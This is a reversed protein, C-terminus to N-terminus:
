KVRERTKPTMTEHNLVRVQHANFVIFSDHAEPVFKKFEADSLSDLKDLVGHEQLRDIVETTLGEYRNLYVIGDFGASKASRIKKDWGGGLDKCRRPKEISLQAEYITRSSGSTRMTAQAYSGFHLGGDTTQAPDLTTIQATTAHYLTLLEGDDNRVRSREGWHSLTQGTEPGLKRAFIDFCGSVRDSNLIQFKYQTTRRQHLLVIRHAVELSPIDTDWQRWGDKAHASSAPHVEPQQEPAKLIEREIREWVKEQIIQSAKTRTTAKAAAPFRMRWQYVLESAIGMRRYAKDVVLTDGFDYNAIVRDGDFVASGDACFKATFRGDMFPEPKISALSSIVRPRLDAANQNSTIKPKGLFEQRTMTAFPHPQSKM